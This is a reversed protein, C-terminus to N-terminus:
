VDYAHCVSGHPACISRFLEADRGEGFCKLSYSCVALFPLGRTLDSWAEELQIAAEPKADLCLLSPMEGVVTLHSASGALRSRELDDVM